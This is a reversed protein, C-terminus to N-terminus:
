RLLQLAIDIGYETFLEFHYRNFARLDRQLEEARLYERMKNMHEPNHPKKAFKKSKICWITRDSRQMYKGAQYITSNKAM